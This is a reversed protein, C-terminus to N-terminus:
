FYKCQLMWKKADMIMSMIYTMLDRYYSLVMWLPILIMKKKIHSYEQFENDKTDKTFTDTRHHQAWARQVHSHPDKLFWGLPCNFRLNNHCCINSTFLIPSNTTFYYSKIIVRGINHPYYQIQINGVLWTALCTYLWIALCDPLCAALQCDAQWGGLCGCPLATLWDVSVLWALWGTM